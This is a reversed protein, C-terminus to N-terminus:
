QHSLAERQAGNAGAWKTRKTSARCTATGHHVRVCSQWERGARDAYRLMWFAFAGFVGGGRRLAHHAFSQANKWEFM